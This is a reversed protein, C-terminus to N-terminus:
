RPARYRDVPYSLERGLSRSLLPKVGSGPIQKRLLELRHLAKNDGSWDIDSFGSPFGVYDELDDLSMGLKEMGEPTYIQDPDIELGFNSYARDVISCLTIMQSKCATLVDSNPMHKYRNPEPEGFWFLMKGGKEIGGVIHNFGIKQDDTRCEHFFRALPDIRLENQIDAYWTEFGDTGRMSAQLAFTVSRSSSVFASFYCRMAFWDFSLDEMKQLFFDSEFLKNDVHDFTRM